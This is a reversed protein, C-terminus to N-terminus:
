LVKVIAHRPGQQKVHSARRPASQMASKSKARPWAADTGTGRALGQVAHGARNGPCPQREASTMVSSPRRRACPMVSSKHQMVHRTACCPGLRVGRTVCCPLLRATNTACTHRHLAVHMSRPKNMGDEKGDVIDDFRFMVLTPKDGEQRGDSASNTAHRDTLLAM